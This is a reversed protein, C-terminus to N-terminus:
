AVKACPKHVPAICSRLVSLGGPSALQAAALPRELVLCVCSVPGSTASNHSEPMKNLQYM